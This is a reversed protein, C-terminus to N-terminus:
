LLCEITPHTIDNCCVYVQMDYGRGLHLLTPTLPDHYRHVPLPTAEM